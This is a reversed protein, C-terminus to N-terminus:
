GFPRWPTAYSNDPQRKRALARREEEVRDVVTPVTM